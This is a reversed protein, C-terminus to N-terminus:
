EAVRREYLASEGEDVLGRLVFGAREYYARLPPNTALCDLRLYAKGAAVAQRAAWDLLARGLGLGGYARRVAFGHVYAADPPMEGWTPVDEWQVTLTGAPDGENGMDSEGRALYVVGRAIMGLLSVRLFDGPHWQDIGRAELWRAADELIALIADADSAQARALTFTRGGASIREGDV